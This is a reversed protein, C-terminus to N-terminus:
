TYVLAAVGFLPNSKGFNNFQGGVYLASSGNASLAWVTGDSVIFPLTSWAIGDWAAIYKAPTMGDGLTTFFGGIFLRSGFATLALVGGSVGNSSSAPLTSWKNGDWAVINKASTADDDGLTSFQGGVYLKGAFVCLAWVGGSVGDSSSIGLTSWASGNWAAIYNAPTTGDGLTTFEGGVYLKSAFAALANVRSGVGNSRGIPLTSWTSGDWAAIYKASTTGESLVYFQGGVYLKSGFVALANVSEVVEWGNNGVGNINGSTLTSWADGDWAAIHKAARGDGLSHFSGGVYLKSGFVAMAKVAYSVGNSSGSRLTTWASGNYATIGKAPEPGESAAGFQGGAYVIGNWEIVSYVIGWLGTAATSPFTVLSLPAASPSPTIFPSGTPSPSSSPTRSSTPSPTRSQTPTRTPTPTASPSIDWTSTSLLAAFNGAPASNDGLSAFDGGVYLASSGDAALAHVSGSVGDSSGVTLNSWVGGDWAAIGKASTTGDGLTTFAGGVYLKSEFAALANVTYGMGNSSSFALNSWASGDWAAIYNAPTTYDGLTWFEGGIYLKSGFVSLALVAGAVGDNGNGLPLNSWISGDWAAIGMAPTTYDGLTWFQGGVYLKSGFVSLAHVTYGVGDRSGVTLNSWSSGDWAAIHKASTTGDGLTSFEGGVYLKGGFVSLTNVVGSVGNSSGVTLNSWTGGDWAAISKASTTGDGLTWFHGGVFLKGGFVTMARVSSSVGNSSGIPLSSWAIGDWAAICKVSTIGDRTSLFDGGAYVKGAFTALSTVAGLLGSSPQVPSWFADVVSLSASSWAAIYNAATTGDGLSTFRGGVFLKSGYSSLSFVHGSVGNSSGVTLNSWVSGDWAAIGKASTTGDGLTTFWGGVYLKGAFVSLASVGSSVGNSSGIPLNSWSSGDWAAIGKTTTGDGLTWFQGGVYLKSGFSALSTVESSGVGNSSGVPLTSWASGDWAAIRNASTIGDGLTEFVGGVFLKSSFVSLARVPNSVGNSRRIRLSSWASGDWAAINQASTVGDGLSTFSGGVYLKGAFVCMAWVGGSVGNSSGVPLSSWTGGDWAAIGKASTTGDGLTTFWPGGVYLKSGFVCLAAVADGVGNSSGIPLTSWMSGDWAAIGNASTFGDSLTTFYGGVYVIGDWEVAANVQGGVGFTGATSPFTVLSPPLASPSPTPSPLTRTPTPSPTPSPSLTPSVSPSPTNSPSPSPYDSPASSASPTQSGSPTPTSTESPSSISRPTMSPVSSPTATPTPTVNAISAGAASSTNVTSSLVLAALNGALTSDDSLTGFQGGVFLSSSGNAALALVSGSVGDSRGVPFTSWAVGDWAAISRASTTGDGLASFSGGVYLKSGFVSLASVPGSVGNSGSSGGGAPLISWASGDWAVIRSAPTIYNGLTTFSGGIYLKSGFVCLASVSDVVGNSSGSGLTSWTTGDWAAIYKAPTMGDGLTTFLGGVYLRSGFVSLALVDGSVGNSGRFPLTLWMSGSWSVIYKASTTGDGLATFSGGVFLRGGFVSLANVAGTSVGTSSGSRLTSWADGDWAAIRNALTSGNGLTPFSGGVFLRGGFVCLANVAGSSVGNSSGAGLTSWAGGDWAAVYKPSASGDGLTTFSGGVYMRGAFPAISRVAGVLGASPQSPSRFARAVFSSSAASWVTIFHAPTVGDGFTTFSGGIALTPGIVSLASVSGGSLGDSTGATLNSWSAGDWAAIYKAPTVGDGLTTFFGGIFLRGGFAALASVTSSLGNSRGVTLNAWTSGNYEAIYKASTTGDGLTAFSGGVVLKGGFVSLANVVGLVGNSRGVTLNSWAAGDWAAIRNASAGDGLAIFSGGVFLRGSFVTLALVGGSVGNNEGMGLTSWASGDWAAIRRATTAGDGLSTFQGGVYLKGAFVSLALVDSSVGNGVGSPLTSWDSGDWAAIRSASTVGDGLTTFLGGVYLKGDFVCLARVSNGVGNSSGAGLPSWASGDWAAIYKASTVSDSLTTFTGAVYSVGNWELVASVSGGIGLGGSSSSPLPVLSVPPDSVPPPPTVSPTPTSTPSITPRAAATSAGAASSTNVTSSLVLAALNGALTSDDSLTGFQGGVFLSSSGNAALALVSGSVGDSRGVPFTSWAVGDWAAISRASTTGDGLASFSGGVYLKSGFVSLASVPGSVGNSGSSGGGAPLISWASGDWAVIRSAPTIYNGLTTFSGGIYLKSGFVCLASVSDVVGNSSGSGLTSWTTGDWAAIYKAPTMGDGLTTFLGGVYLRSGFVSLALVDGSVGNSGRFPLTLWMSGSWSVIYKASTTGDGLATFSGGVFLRGGFVSLANVAGTSVGTSSGSRLTSWADGDWAAIRNALTSGNGLTPFSGGVFLRGGFVCLANVAGSSVGNSSGAGLTSWAGGDWAAVYKPSASGDGLTTFSGGVYMRGAFPAISRVAGVLGASPQSPSRFARAVFSSSAASWVTIFHAPTVGDGFTTFSGGIALTPGIVSLASVSGGSLGDSTGATLNSWSAGDWAAIYKAPTVGDGLTTFFGGIFLRGGFAALASVTSSLGNSRGVTLNAWTSGNYEAIYKASTTGDGLTAFSGGVVLKGAFVSLANVVGLVGNSRGVTLNSWAAGDWAAIRNASAGDGLAIFSGGVFLRGSFVTLALVGGSVGNNEGMGLTSWASGDWAAIRRATAAGDGLSTFQGGVYLKGAFVSLALVDSSVGNGVGSPLTSWDSGDWAAIRSASTVGDGLTTFLGGVYLKGDFVCLARVSNGVGNSSGAGLPSWASGDWAAIYKASTVSDSLTTFTGAVYSVGNWELVASVSGGIGLGGSSSSPLPVLSVPPDSVPPPPTVSPTPTSTPSITPRAAATSAGAASSTNVTSSLVLAALNGALTSDDSLTGFQGGVFLSSSGNAALALVSGSVGDSRGVPFTSWAVGDWAAISRASTTGDGLASFSGGVYLKSGFVSLASVPGSVGNSGSSGGGAPLISWASGDWAVIRSAPTIYNGLTTFSGGIYLKSGFVCLASVSDVVGNSSGSGLTSWTTGDWAAIYKAPTMGDGLTTFLGGVYLRSGFVSLALVDGSVGNSGRFPLTLWMSGSWSVIYKASTTGDGLATFSGGVFLRGGFVSLANVAGTSVGTSSGSRLTSWADGDWAAIRNALTSGNGLTPFSGGVFLRGGFVCLANVAGSSVGNSSGAGLTSWAGGDWAAVYKPSASGDGLTTFSGGVYMRGAFPAISRVAGVLGASPQSPSRFARAVFSSSAASWVTIFHAPTVGDGFTTFSGGIALTPGIVSLASVSGGSLGDSTGATLNSWSAGDWAAIYKAPTVGDGLATFSGGMYLRGAFVSLASVTGALGNSRGVVVTLNAWTSGNYEAIRNASTTGDGLTAFSGGVYLKGAFVSLANVVGLVGNNRGVTLNSWAAGDWSAISRASTTGDGLAIFSGGVFLRGSFVTLALVGGSVGNNEGMGLTSWASGDWAAIRRATTAGDGLSTFQGGVYLKGAFVSLALVDSSVGNGVGSPLTSWDSGDWAAIRSASTVGDGLTTFLGGVYLKGGFVCLARVSNGVGNSSGAGLASWASGDWAAIYKASTVSDSLTTFTGGVYSVGNWELVASVSGGIGLGGSSSSPLPVLSLPPDSVPPPPTVSPTPSPGSSASPLASSNAPGPYRFTFFSGGDVTAALRRGDRSSCMGTWSQPEAGLDGRWTAGGDSSTWPIGNGSGAGALVDDSSVAAIYMGDDSIAVGYWPRPTSGASGNVTTFSVGADTSLALRGNYVAALVLSGNGSIATPFWDLGPERLAWTAGADNSIRLGAGFDALVITAGDESLSPQGRYDGGGSLATTWTLGGDRSLRVSGPVQPSPPTVLAVMVLGNGSVAARSYTRPTSDAVAFSSGGDRSVHVAGGYVAVLVVSANASMGVSWTNIISAGVPLTSFTVGFDRTITAGGYFGAVVAEGSSSCAVSGAWAQYQARDTWSISSAAVSPIPSPTPPTAASPASSPTPTSTPTGSPTPTCSPTSSPTPTSTPTESPTPTPTVTPTPTWSPTPMSGGGAGPQASATPTATSSPGECGEAAAAAAAVVGMEAASAVVVFEAGGVVIESGAGERCLVESEREALLRCTARSAVVVDVGFPNGPYDGTLVRMDLEERIPASPSPSPSPTPGGGGEGCYAPVASCFEGGCAAADNSDFPVVKGWLVLEQEYQEPGYGSLESALPGASLDQMETEWFRRMVSQDHTVVSEPAKEAGVGVFRPRLWYGSLPPSVAQRTAECGYASAFRAPGFSPGYAPGCPVYRPLGYDLAMRLVTSVPASWGGSWYRSASLSPSPLALTDRLLSAAAGDLWEVLRGLHVLFTTTLSSERGDGDVDLLALTAEVVAPVPHEGDPRLSCALHRALPEEKEWTPLTQSGLVVTARELAGGPFLFEAFSEGFRRTGVEVKAEARVGTVRMRRLTSPVDSEALAAALYGVASDLATAADVALSALGSASASASLGLSRARRGEVRLRRGAAAAKEVEAWARSLLPSERVAERADELLTGDAVRALVSASLPTGTVSGGVTGFLDALVRVPVGLVNGVADQSLFASSPCEWTDGMACDYPWALRAGSVDVFLGWVVASLRLGVAAAASSTSENSAGGALRMPVTGVDLAESQLTAQANVAAGDAFGVFATRDFDSRLSGSGAVDEPLLSAVTEGWVEVSALPGCPPLGGALVPAFFANPGACLGAVALGDLGLWNERVNVDFPLSEDAVSATAVEFVIDSRRRLHLDSPVRLSPAPRQESALVPVACRLVGGPCPSYSSAFAEGARTPFPRDEEFDPSLPAPRTDDALGGGDGGAAGMHGQAYLLRVHSEDLEGAYVRLDDLQSGAALPAPRIGPLTDGLVLLDPLPDTGVLSLGSTSSGAAEGDV